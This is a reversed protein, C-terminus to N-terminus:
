ISNVMDVKISLVFECLCFVLKIVWFGLIDDESMKIINFVRLM